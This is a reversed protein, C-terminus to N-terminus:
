FFILSSANELVDVYSHLRAELPLLVVLIWASTVFVKIITELFRLILSRHRWLSYLM